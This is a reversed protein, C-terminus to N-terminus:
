SVVTFGMVRSYIALSLIVYYHHLKAVIGSGVMYGYVTIVDGVHFALEADPNPNPSVHHPDYDYLAVM